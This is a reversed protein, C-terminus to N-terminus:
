GIYATLFGLPRRKLIVLRVNPLNEEIMSSIRGNGVEAAAAIM